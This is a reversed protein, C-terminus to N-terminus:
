RRGEGSWAIPHEPDSDNGRSQWSKRSLAHLAGVLVRREQDIDIVTLDREPMIEKYKARIGEQRLSDIVGLDLWRVKWFVQTDWYQGRPARDVIVGYRKNSHHVIDGQKFKLEM